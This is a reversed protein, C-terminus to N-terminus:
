TFHRRMLLWAIPLIAIVTYVVTSARLEGARKESFCQILGAAGVALSLLFPLLFLPAAAWAGWGDFGRAYVEVGALSAAPLWFTAALSRGSRL